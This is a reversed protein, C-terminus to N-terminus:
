SDSWWVPRGAGASSKVGNSWALSPHGHFRILRAAKLQELNRTDWKIENDRSAPVPFRYSVAAGTARCHCVWHSDFCLFCDYASFNNKIVNLDLSRSLSIQMKITVDRARLSHRVSRHVNKDTENKHSRICTRSCHLENTMIAADNFRHVGRTSRCHFM